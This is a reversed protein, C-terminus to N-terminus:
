REEAAENRMYFAAADTLASDPAPQRLYTGLDRSLREIPHARMFAALGVSRQTLRLVDLCAAEVALRALNVYAVVGDASDTETEARTCASQLWLSATERAMFAQGMRARQHPDADRGTAVLHRRCAEVLADLGGLTVASTRWAGGSLDPQRVYAGPTGLVHDPGAVLGDFSVLGTASARMGQARWGALDAREGPELPILLMQRGGDPRLATVLARTAFGAASALTKAGHLTGDADMRLPADAADTNWVSFLRGARADAAARAVQEPRGDRLVLRLANVHGEYVRGLPLCARGLARLVRLAPLAGQPSTGLGIGGHEHPLPAALAGAQRLGDLEAIPFAGDEDLGAGGDDSGPLYQSLAAILRDADAGSPAPGHAVMNM